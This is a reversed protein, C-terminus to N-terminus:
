GFGWRRARDLVTDATTAISVTGSAVGAAITLSGLPATYDSGPTATGSTEYRVVVPATSEGGGATVTFVADEGETVTTTVAAITVEIEDDDVITVISTTASGLSVWAPLTNAPDAELSATFTEDGEALLDQATRVTVTKSTAGAAITLSGLPVTYDSGPTATGSTEYRVVVPATSTGGSLTVTFVADEGETVTTTVAAITVEIEDDDVITVISTTASGLSVGAPLTNAPDAELSATFTEDGEALRDQITQVTVTKSTAGAAITLATAAQATYDANGATGDVTKWKVTVPSAVAGSLAVELTVGQGEAVSESTASWGVTVTGPDIITTTATAPVGLSSSGGGGSVGTLRLGLTEGRDLVTDATTAISVTGSAVGAAITLSGSPATYDSGPTASGTTEYRVVVPARSTGGSLTVTFMADEGETVTAASRAVTATLADAADSITPNATITATATNATPSITVNAPLPTVGDEAIRVRFTEAGESLTDATTAVTFAASSTAGAAITLATEAQATYDASGATGDATSWSVVVASTFAESLVVRFSAASGEAVSQSTPELSVTVATSSRTSETLVVSAASLWGVSM